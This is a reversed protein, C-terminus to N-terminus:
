FLMYDAIYFACFAFRCVQLAKEDLVKTFIEKRCIMKLKSAM